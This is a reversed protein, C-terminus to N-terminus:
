DKVFSGIGVLSDNSSNTVQVVYTGPQLDGVSANWKPQKSVDRKVIMGFSNVIKISYSDVKFHGLKNDGQSITLNISSSTPNPYLSINISYDPASKYYLKAINSYTANNNLDMAKVRYQNEGM